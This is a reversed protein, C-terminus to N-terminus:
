KGNRIAMIPLLPQGNQEEKLCKLKGFVVREILYVTHTHTQKKNILAQKNPLPYKDEKTNNNLRKYNFVKRNKGRIIENHKNVTSARTM